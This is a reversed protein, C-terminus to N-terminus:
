RRNYFEVQWRWESGDEANWWQILKGVEGGPLLVPLGLDAEGPWIDERRVSDGERTLRCMPSQLTRELDVGLGLRNGEADRVEVTLVEPAAHVLLVRSGTELRRALHAAVRGARDDIERFTVRDEVVGAATDRVWTYHCRDAYRELVDHVHHAFSPSM